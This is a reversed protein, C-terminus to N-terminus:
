AAEMILRDLDRIPRFPRRRNNRLYYWYYNYGLDAEVLTVPLGLAAEDLAAQQGAVGGVVVLVRASAV